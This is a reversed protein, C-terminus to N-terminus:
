PSMAYFDTFTVSLVVHAPVGAWGVSSLIICSFCDASNPLTPIARAITGQIGISGAINHAEPEVHPAANPNRPPIMITKMGGVARIILITPNNLSWILLYAIMPRTM